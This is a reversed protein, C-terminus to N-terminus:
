ADINIGWNEFYARWGELQEPCSIAMRGYADSAFDEPDEDGILNMPGLGKAVDSCFAESPTMHGPQDDNADIVAGVVILTLVVAGLKVVPRVKKTM